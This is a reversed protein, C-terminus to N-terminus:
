CEMLKGLGLNFTTKLIWKNQSPQWPKIINNGRKSFHELHNAHGVREVTGQNIAPLRQSPDAFAM